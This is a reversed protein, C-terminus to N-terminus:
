LTPKKLFLLTIKILHIKKQYISKSITQYSTSIRCSTNQFHPPTKFFYFVLIYYLERWIGLLRDAADSGGVLLGLLVSLHRPCHLENLVSISDFLEFTGYKISPFVTYGCLLAADSDGSIISVLSDKSAYFSLFHAVAGEAEGPSKYVSVTITDRHLWKAAKLGAIWGDAVGRYFDQTNGKGRGSKVLHKFNGGDVHIEVDVKQTSQDEVLETSLQELLRIVRYLSNAALARGSNYDFTFVKHLDPGSFM